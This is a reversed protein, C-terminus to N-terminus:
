EDEEEMKKTEIIYEYKNLVDIIEDVKNALKIIDAQDIYGDNDDLKGIKNIRKPIFYKNKIEEKEVEQTTVIKCELTDDNWFHRDYVEHGRRDAMELIDECVTTITGFYVRNYESLVYLNGYEDEKAQDLLKLFEDKNM